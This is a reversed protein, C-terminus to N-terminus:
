KAHLGCEKHEPNEWWWRGARIDEGEKIARTCPACGISPFGKDHLKNYPVSNKKIYDWVDEESWNILPNVKIVQFNEDWEVVPMDVRTISQSARLGTIWVKLPKLARKLPEIKRINCCRKRNEISEFHGNIGQTQYLEEVKTKDPFFVNLKVGYKLNTADMVDYTEPHLRGTDLTFINSEKNIKFIMDTLVQDEAGLSSSLAAEKGYEKLFYELVETAEAKAFRENLRKIEM